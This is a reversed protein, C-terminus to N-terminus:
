EVKIPPKRAESVRSTWFPSDSLSKVCSTANEHWFSLLHILSEGERWAADDRRWSGNPSDDSGEISAELNNKHNRRWSGNPSDDSGEINAELNIKHNRRWSANPSDDSGEVSAELNTKHNRRWQSKPMQNPELQDTVTLFSHSIITIPCRRPTYM